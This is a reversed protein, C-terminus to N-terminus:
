SSNQQNIVKQNYHRIRNYKNIIIIIHQQKNSTDNVIEQMIATNVCMVMKEFKNRPM